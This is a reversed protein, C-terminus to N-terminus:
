QKLKSKLTEFSLKVSKDTVIYNEITQCSHLITSHDRNGFFSGISKLSHQTYKKALYIAMQRALAIEHKRSKSVM